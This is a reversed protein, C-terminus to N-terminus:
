LTHRDEWFALQSELTSIQISYQEILTKLYQAKDRCFNRGMLAECALDSRSNQAEELQRELIEAKAQVREYKRIAITRAKIADVIAESITSTYSDWADASQQVKKYDPQATWSALLGNVTTSSSHVTAFM